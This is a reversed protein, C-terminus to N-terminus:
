SLWSLTWMRHHISWISLGLNIYIIIWDYGPWLSLKFNHNKVDGTLYKSLEWVHERCDVTSPRSVLKSLFSPGSSCSYPCPGPFVSHASAWPLTHFLSHAELTFSLGKSAHMARKNERFCPICKAAHWLVRSHCRVWKEWREPCLSDLPRCSNLSAVQSRAGVGGDEYDCSTQEARSMIDMNWTPSFALPLLCFTHGTLDTGRWWSFFWSEWM